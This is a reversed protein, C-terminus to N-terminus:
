FRGVLLGLFETQLILRFGKKGVMFFFDLEWDAIKLGRTKSAKARQETPTRRPINLKVATVAGAGAAGKPGVVLRDFPIVNSWAMRFSGTRIILSGSMTMSLAPPM